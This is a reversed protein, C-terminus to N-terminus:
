TCNRCRRLSHGISVFCNILNQVDLYFNRVEVIDLLLGALVCGLGAFLFPLSVQLVITLRTEKPPTAPFAPIQSLTLNSAEVDCELDAKGDVIGSDGSEEDLLPIDVLEEKSTRDVNMIRKRVTITESM